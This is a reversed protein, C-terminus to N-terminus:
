WELVFFLQASPPMCPWSGDLADFTRGDVFWPEGIAQNPLSLDPMQTAIPPPVAVVSSTTLANSPAANPPM